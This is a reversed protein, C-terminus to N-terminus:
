KLGFQSKSILKGNQFMLLANAGFSTGKCTWAVTKYGAVESSSTEECPAQGLIDVVQQGNMGNKLATYMEMTMGDATRDKTPPPETPPKPSPKETPPLTPASATEAVHIAREAAATAETEQAAQTAAQMTPVFATQTAIVALAETTSTADAQRILERGGPTIAYFISCCMFMASGLALVVLAKAKWGLAMFSKGSWKAFRAGAAQAAQGAEDKTMIM